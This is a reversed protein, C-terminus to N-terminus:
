PITVVEDRLLEDSFTARAFDTLFISKLDPPTYNPGKQVKGDARLGGGSKTMNSRHVEDTYPESELGWEVYCGEVVYQIDALADLAAIIDFKKPDRPGGDKPFGIAERFELFEEAILRYRLDVNRPAYTECVPRGMARQFDVIQGHLKTTM